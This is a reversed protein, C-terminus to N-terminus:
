APDQGPGRPGTSGSVVSPRPCGTSRPCRTGEKAETWEIGPAAGDGWGYCGGIGGSVTLSDGPAPGPRRASFRQGPGSLPQPRSPRPCQSRPKARPVGPAPTVFSCRPLVPSPRRPCRQAAEPTTFPGPKEEPAGSLSHPGPGGVPCFAPRRRSRDGLFAFSKFFPPAWPCQLRCGSDGGRAPRRTLTGAQPTGEGLSVGRLSRNLKQRRPSVHIKDPASPTVEPADATAPAEGHLELPAEQPCWALAEAGPRAPCTQSAVKVEAHVAFGGGGWPATALAHAGAGRPSHSPPPRASPM